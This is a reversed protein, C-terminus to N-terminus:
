EKEGIVDRLQLRESIAEIAEDSISAPMRYHIEKVHHKIDLLAFLNCLKLTITLIVILSVIIINKWTQDM